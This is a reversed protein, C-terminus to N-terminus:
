CGMWLFGWGVVSSGIELGTREIGVAGGCWWEEAEGSVSAADGRRVSVGRGRVPGRRTGEGSGAEHGRRIGGLGRVPILASRSVVSALSLRSRREGVVAGVVVDVALLVLLYLAGADARAM